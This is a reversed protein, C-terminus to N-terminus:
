QEPAADAEDRPEREIGAIKRAFARGEVGDGVGVLRARALDREGPQQHAARDHQRDGAGALDGMELLVNARGRDLQALLLEGLEVADPARRPSANDTM